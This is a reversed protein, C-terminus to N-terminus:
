LRRPTTALRRVAVRFCGAQLVEGPAATIPIVVRLPAGLASQVNAEGLVLAHAASAAILTAILLAATVAAFTRFRAPVAAATTSGYARQTAPM